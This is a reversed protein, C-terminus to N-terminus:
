RRIISFKVLIGSWSRSGKKRRASAGDLGKLERYDACRETRRTMTDMRRRDSADNKTTLLWHPSLLVHQAPRLPRFRLRNEDPYARWHRTAPPLRGPLFSTSPSYLHAPQYQCRDARNPSRSLSWCDM